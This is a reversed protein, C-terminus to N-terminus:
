VLYKATTKAAVEDASVAPALEILRCQSQHDARQFVALKIVIMAVVNRGTLPLSCAPIFKPTFRLPNVAAM